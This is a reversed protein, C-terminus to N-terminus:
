LKRRGELSCSGSNATGVNFSAMSITITTAAKDNIMDRHLKFPIYKQATKKLGAQTAV